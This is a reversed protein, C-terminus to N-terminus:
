LQKFIVQKKEFLSTQMPKKSYFFLASELEMRSDGTKLNNLFFGFYIQNLFFFVAM